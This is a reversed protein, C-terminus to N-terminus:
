LSIYRRSQNNSKKKRPMKRKSINKKNKGGKIELLKHYEFHNIIKNQIDSYKMTITQKSIIDEHHPNINSKKRWIKNNSQIPITKQKNEISTTKQTSLFTFINAHPESNQIQSRGGYVVYNFSNKVFEYINQSPPITDNFFQTFAPQTINEIYSLRSNKFWEIADKNPIFNLETFTFIRESMFSNEISNTNNKITKGFDILIVRGYSPADDTTFYKYNPNIMINQLHADGHKYGMKNLRYLEYIIMQKFFELRDKSDEDTQNILNGIVDKALQFGDMFEMFIISIDCTHIMQFISHIIRTDLEKNKLQNIILNQINQKQNYQKYIHKYIIAPCIADFPSYKDIFSTNYIKKQIDIEKEFNNYLTLEIGDYPVRGPIDIWGRNDSTLFIKLLIKRVDVDFDNSRMSIFPSPIDPNLEAVLTICSISSNTLISLTSNQIFFDIADSRNDFLERNLSVGGIKNSNKKRNSIEKVGKRKSFEGFPANEDAFLLPEMRTKLTCLHIIDSYNHWIVIESPGEM